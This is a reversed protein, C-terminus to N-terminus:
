FNISTSVEHRFAGLPRGAWRLLAGDTFGLHLFGAYGAYLLFLRWYGFDEVSMLRPVLFVLLINFLSAVAPGGGMTACDRALASFRSDRVRDAVGEVGPITEVHGIETKLPYGM